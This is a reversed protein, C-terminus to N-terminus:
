LGRQDHIRCFDRGSLSIGRCQEGRLTRAACQNRAGEDSSNSPTEERRGNRSLLPTVSRQRSLRARLTNLYSDNDNELQEEVTNQESETRVSRGFAAGPAVSPERNNQTSDAAQSRGVSPTGHSGKPYFRLGLRCLLDALIFSGLVFTLYIVDSDFLDLLNGILNGPVVLIFFIRIFKDANVFSLSIMGFVLYCFHIVITNLKQFLMESGGVKETIWAMKKDFNEQLAGIMTLMNAITSNIKQLQELTYQYQMEVANHHSAFHDSTEDIKEAITAANKQLNEMNRLLSDQNLKSKKSQLELQKINDDIRGRLDSLLIAVEQQGARILSKERVLERFNSEVKARHAESLKMIDGQQSIIMNNNVSMEDIAEQALNQLEKQNNAMQKMIQIQEAATNMLKNITLETLGRFQEHRVSACVAKARNTILHYANWTDPDMSETCMKLSMEETCEYIKRGESDSQCNLLMVALKGIQEANLLHCSKKLKLIVRHHCFDLKSLNTGIWKSAERIFSEDGESLEYPVSPYQGVAYGSKDDNQPPWFSDLFSGNARCVMTVCIVLLIWRKNM